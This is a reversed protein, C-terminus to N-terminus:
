AFILSGELGVGCFLCLFLLVSCFICLIACIVPRDLFLMRCLFLVIPILICGSVFCSGFHLNIGGGFVLM